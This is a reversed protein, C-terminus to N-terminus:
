IGNKAVKGTVGKCLGEGLGEEGEGRHPNGGKELYEGWVPMPLGGGCVCM